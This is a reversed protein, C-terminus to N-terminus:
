VRPEGNRNVMITPGPQTAMQVNHERGRFTYSVDWYDTARTSPVSKCRQVDQTKVRRGDNGVRSGVVAGAVAGGATAIDRGTGGGVQHGLVGGIIAGIVAGPVNRKDGSEQAVPEQEIWCRQEPTAVVARVSRVPVVFLRENARRDWKSPSERDNAALQGGVLRVSSIRDNLGMSSLSPYRGPQLVTCRGGFNADDCVEWRQSNVVISSARDNFGFSMFNPVSEQASFTRGRFNDGEYFIVADPLTAAPQQQHQQQQQQQPQPQPQPQPQQQQQFGLMRVSSIRDNLGIERLSPYNGPRLVVCRGGFNADDCVEWSESSVVVSSARDNFGTDRLSNVSQQTSFTRGQYNDNEYFTVQALASASALSAVLLSASRRSFRSNLAQM